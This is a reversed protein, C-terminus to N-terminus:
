NWENNGGTQEEQKDEDHDKFEQNLAMGLTFFFSIEDNSLKELGGQVLLGAIERELEKYYNKDYEELKEIVETFIRQIIEKNLKLGNLRNRFPTAGKKDVYQINLLFQTLVGLMFISKKASSNFFDKHEDFFTIFKHNM